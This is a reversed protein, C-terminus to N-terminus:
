HPFHIVGVAVLMALTVVDTVVAIQSFHLLMVWVPGDCFRQIIDELFDGRAPTGAPLLLV